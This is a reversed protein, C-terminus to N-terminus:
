HIHTNNVGEKKEKAQRDDFFWKIIQYIVILVFTVLLLYPTIKEIM